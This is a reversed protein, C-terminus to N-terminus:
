VLIHPKGDAGAFWTGVPLVAYCNVHLHGVEERTLGLTPLSRIVRLSLGQLWTRNNIPMKGVTADLVAGFADCPLSLLATYQRAHPTDARYDFEIAVPLEGADRSLQM